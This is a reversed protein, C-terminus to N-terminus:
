PWACMQEAVRCKVPANNVFLSLGSLGWTGDISPFM